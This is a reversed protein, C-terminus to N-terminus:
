LNSNLPFPRLGLLVGGVGGQSIRTPALARAWFDGSGSSWFVGRLFGRSEERLRPRSQSRVLTVAAHCNAALPQRKLRRHPRDGATKETAALMSSSTSGRSTKALLFASSSFVSDSPPSSAIFAGALITIFRGAISFSEVALARGFALSMCLCPWLWLCLWLCLRM